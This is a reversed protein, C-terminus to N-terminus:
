SKFSLNVAGLPLYLHSVLLAYCANTLNDKLPVIDYQLEVVFEGFHLWPSLGSLSDTTPDNRGTAFQKLKKSCFEELKALGATTGPTAWSVEKVNNDVKLSEYAKKWDTAM